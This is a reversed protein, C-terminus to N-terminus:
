KQIQNPSLLKVKLKDIESHTPVTIRNFDLKPEIKGDHREGSLILKMERIRAKLSRVKDELDMVYDDNQQQLSYEM